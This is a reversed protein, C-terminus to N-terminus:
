AVYDFYQYIQGHHNKQGLEIALAEFHLNVFVMVFLSDVEEPRRFLHIM